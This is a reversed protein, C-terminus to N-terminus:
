RDYEFRQVLLFVKLWTEIGASQVVYFAKEGRDFFYSFFLLLECMIKAKAGFSVFFFRSYKQLRWATSSFFVWVLHHNRFFMPQETDGRCIKGPLKFSLVFNSIRRFSSSNHNSIQVPSRPQRTHADSASFGVRPIRELEIKAGERSTKFVFFFDRCISFFSQRVDRERQGGWCRFFNIIKQYFYSDIVTTTIHILSTQLLFARTM